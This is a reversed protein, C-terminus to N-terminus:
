VLRKRQIFKLYDSFDHSQKTNLEIASSAAFGWKQNDPINPQCGVLDKDSYLNIFTDCKLPPKTWGFAAIDNRVVFRLTKVSFGIPSGCHIVKNVKVNLKASIWCFLSHALIDVEYGADQLSNILYEIQTIIKKTAGTKFKLRAPDLLTKGLIAMDDLDKQYKVYIINQYQKKLRNHLIVESELDYQGYLEKNTDSIGVGVLLVKM